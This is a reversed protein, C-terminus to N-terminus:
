EMLEFISSPAAWQDGVRHSFHKANAMYDELSARMTLGYATRLVIWKIGRMEAQALHSKQFAVHPDSGGWQYLWSRPSMNTRLMWPEPDDVFYAVVKGRHKVNTIIGANRKSKPQLKSYRDAHTIGVDNQQLVM